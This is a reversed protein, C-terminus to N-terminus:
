NITIIKGNLGQIKDWKITLTYENGIIFPCVMDIINSLTYHSWSIIINKKIKPVYLEIFGNDEINVVKARHYINNNNYEMVWFLESYGKKLIYNRHNYSQVLSILKYVDPIFINSERFIYKKILLHIHQDIVRRIPSTFHTYYYLNLNFHKTSKNNKLCNSYLMYMAPSHEKQLCSIRLILEENCLNCLTEAVYKNTYIMLYEILEHSDNLSKNLKSEIFYKINNYVKHSYCNDYNLAKSNIISRKQLKHSIENNNRNYTVLLSIVNRQKGEVLSCIDEAYQKPLLNYPKKNPIYISTVQDHIYPNYNFYTVDSIHISIEEINDDNYYGIVDDIDKCSCPDISILEAKYIPNYLNTTEIFMKPSKICMNFKYQVIEIYDVQNIPGLIEVCEGKMKINDTNWELPKFRIYYDIGKRPLKSAVIYTPYENNESQCEYILMNRSNAGYLIKSSLCLRGLLIPHKQMYQINIIKDVHYMYNNDYFCSPVNKIDKLDNENYQIQATCGPIINKGKVIDESIIFLVNTIDNSIAYGCRRSPCSIIKVTYWNYQITINM